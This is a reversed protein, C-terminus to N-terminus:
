FCTSCNTLAIDASWRMPPIFWRICQAGLNWYSITCDPDVFYVGDYLHDLMGKYFDGLNIRRGRCEVVILKLKDTSLRSM